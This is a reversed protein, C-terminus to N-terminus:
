TDGTNNNTIDLKGARLQMYLRCYLKRNDGTAPGFKNTFWRGFDTTISRHKREDLTLNWGKCQKVDLGLVDLADRLSRYAAAKYKLGFHQMFDRLTTQYSFFEGTQLNFNWSHTGDTNEKIYDREELFEITSDVPVSKAVPRM